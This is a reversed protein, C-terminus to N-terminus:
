NIGIDAGMDAEGSEETRGPRRMRPQQGFTWNLSVFFARGGFRRTTVQSHQSDSTRFEFGMQDLPDMVRFAITANEGLKQRLALNAVTFGSVRGQESGDGALTTSGTSWCDM